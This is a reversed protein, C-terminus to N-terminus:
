PRSDFSSVRELVFLQRGWSVLISLFSSPRRTLAVATHSSGPISLSTASTLYLPLSHLQHNQLSTYIHLLVLSSIQTHTHSLSGDLWCVFLNYSSSVKVDVNEWFDHWVNVCVSM